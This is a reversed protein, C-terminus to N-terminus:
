SYYHGLSQQILMLYSNAQLQIHRTSWEEQIDCARSESKLMEAATVAQLHQQSMSTNTLM